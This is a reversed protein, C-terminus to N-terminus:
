PLIKYDKKKKLVSNAFHIVFEYLFPTKEKIWKWYIKDTCVQDRGELSDYADAIGSM